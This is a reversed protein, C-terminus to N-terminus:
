LFEKILEIQGIVFALAQETRLISESIKTKIAGLNIFYNIDRENLGGEPGIILQVLDLKKSDSFVKRMSSGNPDLLISKDPLILDRVEKKDEYFRIEPYYFNKGQEMGLDLEEKWSEERWISSKEYSKESKSLPFINVKQIQLTGTLQFIKKMTQPRQYSIFLEICPDKKPIIKKFYYEGIIYEKNIELIKFEGIDLNLRASLLSFGEYVKKIEILHNKKRRQIKYINKDVLEDEKLILLNM